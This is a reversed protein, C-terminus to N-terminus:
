EASRQWSRGWDILAGGGRPPPFLAPALLIASRGRALSLLGELARRAGPDGCRACGDPPLANIVLAAVEIDQRALAAILRATERRPLEAARTVPVFRARAPDRLLEAFRTLTRSLEVLEAALPGPPISERYKLLIALLAHDWALALAPMELLRLAHGTPAMDVIVLDFAEEGEGLVAEALVAIAMLEDLGGPTVGSFREEIEAGPAGVFADLLGLIAQRRDQDDASWRELARSADLERVWLNPSGDPLRTADDGLPIDLVDGLSHAPDTSLLLLRKGPHEGALL